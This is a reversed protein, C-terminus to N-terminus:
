GRTAPPVVGGITAIVQGTKADINVVQPGNSVRWYITEGQGILHNLTVTPSGGLKLGAAEALAMARHAPILEDLYVSETVATNVWVVLVRDAEDRGSIVHRFPLESSGQITILRRLPTDRKAIAIATEGDVYAGLCCTKQKPAFSGIALFLAVGAVAILWKMALGGM